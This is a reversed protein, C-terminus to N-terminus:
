YYKFFSELWKVWLLCLTAKKSSHGHLYWFLFSSILNIVTYLLKLIISVYICNNPSLFIFNLNDSLDHSFCFFKIYFKHSKIDINYKVRVINMERINITGNKRWAYQAYLNQFLFPLTRLVDNFLIIIASNMSINRYFHFPQYFTYFSNHVNWSGVTANIHM